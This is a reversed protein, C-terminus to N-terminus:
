KRKALILQVALSLFFVCNIDLMIFLTILFHKGKLIHLCSKKHKWWFDFICMMSLGSKKFLWYWWLQNKFVTWLSCSTNWHSVTILRWNLRANSPSIVTRIIISLKIINDYRQTIPRHHCIKWLSYIQPTIIPNPVKNQHFKKIMM